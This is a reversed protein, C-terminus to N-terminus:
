ADRVGIKSGNQRGVPEFTIFEPEACKEADELGLSFRQYQQSAFNLERREASALKSSERERRARERMFSARFVGLYWHSYRRSKLGMEEDGQSDRGGGGLELSSGLDHRM